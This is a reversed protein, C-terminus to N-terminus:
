AASSNFTNRQKAIALSSSSAFAEQILPPTDIHESDTSDTSGLSPTNSRNSVQRHRASSTAEGLELNLLVRAVLDPWSIDTGCLAFSFICYWPLRTASGFLSFPLFTLSLYQLRAPPAGNLLNEALKSSQQGSWQQIDLEKRALDELKLLERAKQMGKELMDRNREAFARSNDYDPFTWCFSRIAMIVGDCLPSVPFSEAKTYGPRSWPLTYGKKPRSVVHSSCSHVDPCM